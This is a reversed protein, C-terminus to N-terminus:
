VDGTDQDGSTIIIDKSSFNFTEVKVPEYQERM